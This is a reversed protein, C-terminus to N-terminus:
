ISRFCAFRVMDHRVPIPASGISRQQCLHMQAKGSTIWVYRITTMINIKRLPHPFPFLHDMLNIGTHFILPANLSEFMMKRHCWYAPTCILQNFRFIKILESKANALQICRAYQLISWQSRHQIIILDSLKDYLKYNHGLLCTRAVICSKNWSEQKRKVKQSLILVFYWFRFNDVSGGCM